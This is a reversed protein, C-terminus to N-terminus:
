KEGNERQVGDLAAKRQEALRRDNTKEAGTRGHRVRNERAIESQQERARLKKARRLNVIEAMDDDQRAL